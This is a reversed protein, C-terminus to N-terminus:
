VIATRPPTVPLNCAAQLMGAMEGLRDQKGFSLRFTTAPTWAAAVMQALLRDIPMVPDASEQVQALIALLWYFKYSNTVDDFGAALHEVPLSPSPPLAAQM